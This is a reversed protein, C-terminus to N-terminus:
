KLNQTKAEIIIFGIKQQMLQVIHLFLYGSPLHKPRKTLSSNKLNNYCTDIKELLRQM